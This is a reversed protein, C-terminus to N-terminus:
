VSFAGDVELPERTDRQPVVLVSCKAGRLVRSAVSGLLLRHLPGHRRGAVVILEARADEAFDLIEPAPDGIPSIPQVEVGAPAALADKMERLAKTTRAEYGPLWAARREPELDFHTRVHLLYMTRVDPFLQLAVRAADLGASTLDTAVAICRPLRELEPTVVLLPAAAYQAIHMPTEAGLLRELPGHRRVGTLILRARRERAAHAIISAPDGLRIEVPWPTQKGVLTRLQDRVRDLLREARSQDMPETPVLLEPAPVLQAMPELVSLVQVEGGIRSALLRAATLAADSSSTGDSAVLIPGTAAQEHRTGPPSALATDSTAFM